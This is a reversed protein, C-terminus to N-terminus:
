ALPSSDHPARSQSRGPDHLSTPNGGGDGGDDEVVVVVVIVMM